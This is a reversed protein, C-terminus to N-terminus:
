YEGIPSHKITEELEEDSVAGRGDFEIGYINGSIIKGELDTVCWYKYNKAINKLESKKINKGLYIHVFYEENKM